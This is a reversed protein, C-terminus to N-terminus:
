VPLMSERSKWISVSAHCAHLVDQGLQLEIKSTVSILIHLVTDGETNYNYKYSMAATWDLM